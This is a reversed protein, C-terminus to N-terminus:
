PKVTKRQIINDEYFNKKLEIEARTYQNHFSLRKM